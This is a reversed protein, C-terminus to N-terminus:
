KGCSSQLHISLTLLLDIHHLDLLLVLLSITLAMGFQRVNPYGIAFFIRGILYFVNMLPIMRAVLDNEKLFCILVMQAAFSFVFQELSNNFIRSAKMIVQDNGSLPNVATSTGRRISVIQVSAFLWLLELVWYKITFELRSPFSTLNPTIKPSLIKLNGRYALFTVGFVVTGGILTLVTALMQYLASRDRPKVEVWGEDESGRPKAM